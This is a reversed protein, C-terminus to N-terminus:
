AESCRSGRMKLAAGKIYAINRAKRALAANQFDKKAMCMDEALWAIRYLLDLDIKSIEAKM